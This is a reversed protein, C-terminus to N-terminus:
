VKLTFHTSPTGDFASVTVTAIHAGDQAFITYLAAESIILARDRLDADRVITLDTHVTGQALQIVADIAYERSINTETSNTM